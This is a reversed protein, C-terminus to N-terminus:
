FGVSYPADTKDAVLATKALMCDFGYGRTGRCRKFDATSTRLTIERVAPAESPLECGSATRVLLLGDVNAKVIGAKM